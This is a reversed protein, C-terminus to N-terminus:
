LTENWLHQIAYQTADTPINNILMEDFAAFNNKKNGLM